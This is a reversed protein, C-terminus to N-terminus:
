RPRRDYQFFVVRRIAEAPLCEEPRPFEKKIYAALLPLIVAVIVGLVIWLYAGIDSM